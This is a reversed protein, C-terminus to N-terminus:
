TVEDQNAALQAELCKVRVLLSEYDTMDSANTKRTAVLTEDDEDLDAVVLEDESTIAKSLSTVTVPMSTTPLPITSVVYMYENTCTVIVTGGVDTPRLAVSYSSGKTVSVNTSGDGYIALSSLSAPNYFYLYVPALYNPWTIYVQLYTTSNNDSMVGVIGSYLSTVTDYEDSSTSRRVWHTLIPMRTGIAYYFALNVHLWLEGAAPSSVAGVIATQPFDTIPFLGPRMLRADYSVRCPKALRASNSTELQIISDYSIRQSFNYASSGPIIALAVRGATNDSVSPRWELTFPALFRMSGYAQMADSVRGILGNVDWVDAYSYDSDDSRFTHLLITDKVVHAPASPLPARRARTSVRQPLKRKPPM